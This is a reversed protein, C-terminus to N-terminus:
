GTRASRYERSSGKEVRSPIENLKRTVGKTDSSDLVRRGKGFLREESREAAGPFPGPRRFAKRAYGGLKSPRAPASTQIASSSIRTADASRRTGSNRPASRSDEARVDRRSPGGEVEAGLFRRAHVAAPRPPAKEAGAICKVGEDGFGVCPRLSHSRPTM